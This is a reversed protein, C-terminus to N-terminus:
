EEPAPAPPKERPTGGANGGIAKTGRLGKGEAPAKFGFEQRIQEEDLELGLNNALIDAIKARTEPKLDRVVSIKIRPPRAKMGNFHVFAAGLDQEFRLSVKEGDGARRDYAEDAHVTGLAFSGPGGTESTLTAGTVLKSNEANCAQAIAGHVDSSKGGGEVWHVVIKCLNSFRAWGEKGLMALARDLTKKDEATATPAHEGTVYPMGFREAFIVWDRFAMTKFLSWIAATRMLGARVANEWSGAYTIWWKGPELYEGDPNATSTLLPYGDPDFRFRRHKVNAFWAPVFLGDRYDWDIETASWGYWKAECQHSLTEAFNPVLRLAEELQKAAKKDAVTDGGAQIIWPKGAVADRRAELQSRLHADAEIKDDFLDCQMEPEGMEAMRYIALLSRMTLGYGPHRLPAAAANDKENDASILGLDPTAPLMKPREMPM